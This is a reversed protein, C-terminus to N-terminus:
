RDLEQQGEDEENEGAHEDDRDPRSADAHHSHEKGRQETLLESRVQRARGEGLDHFRGEGRPQQGIPPQGVQGTTPEPDIRGGPSNKGETCGPCSLFRESREPPTQGLFLSRIASDPHISVMGIGIPRGREGDEGPLIRRCVAESLATRDMKEKIGATHVIM